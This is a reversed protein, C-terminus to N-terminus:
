FNSWRVAAVAVHYRYFWCCFLIVNGVLMVIPELDLGILHWLGLNKAIDSIWSGNSFITSFLFGNFLAFVWVFSSEYCFISRAWDASPLLGRVIWWTVVIAGMLRHIWWSLLGFLLGGILPIWLLMSATVHAYTVLMLFLWVGGLIGGVLRHLWLCLLGFLLSGILPSWLLEIDTSHEYIVLMLFLWVGGLIGLMLHQPWVFRCAIQPSVRLKLRSYFDRPTAICRIVARAGRLMGSEVQWVSGPRRGPSLSEAVVLGCEPCRGEMSLSTLDYGCSECRPPFDTQVPPFAASRAARSLWAILICCGSLITLPIVFEYGRMFMREVQEFHNTLAVFTSGIIATLLWLIGTGSLVAYFARRFSRIASGDAHVTPMLFWAMNLALIGYAAAIALALGLTETMDGDPHWQSWVEALTLKEVVPKYSNNDAVWHTQVTDNWMVLLVVTAIYFVLHVFFCCRTVWATSNVMCRVASGPSLVYRYPAALAAVWTPVVARVQSENVTAQEMSIAVRRLAGITGKRM